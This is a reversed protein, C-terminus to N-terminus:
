RSLKTRRVWDSLQRYYDFAIQFMLVLVWLSVISMGVTGLVELTDTVVGRDKWYSEGAAFLLVVVICLGYLKFIRRIRDGRMGRRNSTQVLDAIPAWGGGYRESWLPPRNALWTARQRATAPSLMQSRDTQFAKSQISLSRWVLGDEFERHLWGHQPDAIKEWCRILAEHGIDIETDDNIPEPPYPSLFSAGEARFADIVRRLEEASTGCLTVLDRFYQPRRIARGDASIDTLARFLREVIVASGDPAIAQDKSIHLAGATVRRALGYMAAKADKIVLHRKAIQGESDASSVNRSSVVEDMVGDAHDSLLAVLGGTPTLLDEGLTAQENPHDPKVTHWMLMLGHQILPLEDERGRVDAVLRDALEATVHGGYLEAPRRIARILADRKMRPVLYQTRNFAEALGDYRACEGLFESRMTIILHIDAGTRDPKIQHVAPQSQDDHLDPEAAMVGTILSVFLEAEERSTEREFRFLEEFQDVLICLRKGAVGKLTAGVSSLTAGRQNFLRIIQGIRRIDDARDELKALEHALNWLPGGSPRMTLTLWDAGHRLHQFALKPLVGARVLSSKGSGSAGHIFVLRQQAMRVIVDDVMSERGFFIQWEDTEFPRLGPYPNKPWSSAADRVNAAPLAM